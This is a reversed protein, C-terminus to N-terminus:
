TCTGHKLFYTKAAKMRPLLDFSGSSAPGLWLVIYNHVHLESIRYYQYTFNLQFFRKIEAYTKSKMSKLLM